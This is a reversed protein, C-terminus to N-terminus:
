KQSRLWLIRELLSDILPFFQTQNNAIMDNRFQAVVGVASKHDGKLICRSYQDILEKYRPYEGHIKALDEHVKWPNLGNADIIKARLEQAVLSEPGSEEYTEAYEGELQELTIM